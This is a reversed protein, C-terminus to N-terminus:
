HNLIYYKSCCIWWLTVFSLVNVRFSTIIEFQVHFIGTSLSKQDCVNINLVIVTVALDWFHVFGTTSKWDWLSEEYFGSSIIYTCNVQVILLNSLALQLLLCFSHLLLHLAICWGLGQLTWNSHLFSSHLLVLGHCASNFIHKNIVYPWCTCICACGSAIEPFHLTM